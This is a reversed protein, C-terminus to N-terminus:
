YDYVPPNIYDLVICPKGNDAIKSTFSIDILGKDLNWGLTDGLEVQDIGLEDYLENLSIYGGVDQIMSKNLSNVAANVKETESKFYRGSLPDYFQTEGNDTVIVNSKTVPNKHLHSEAVKERVEKEREGITEVVKERYDALTSESLKYAAALAANRRVNVSSAGLLCSISLVGTIMAPVYPKWAVKIAEVPRLHNIQSCNEQNNDRAEKCLEYNQRHKEEEILEMAKPTARVALVTTTVMGAIGFGTLIEPSHKSMTRQIGRLVKPLKVKKM